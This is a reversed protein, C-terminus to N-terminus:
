GLRGGARDRAVWCWCGNRLNLLSDSTDRITVEDASGREKELEKRTPSDSKHYLDRLLHDPMLDARRLVKLQARNELNKISSLAGASELICLTIIMAATALFASFLPPSAVIGAVIL